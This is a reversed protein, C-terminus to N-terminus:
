WLEPKLWKALDSQKFKGYFENKEILQICKKYEEIDLLPNVLINFDIEKPLGINLSIGLQNIENTSIIDFRYEREYAFVYEKRFAAFRVKSEQLKSPNVGILNKYKVKGHILKSVELDNVIPMSGEEIRNIFDDRKFRLSYKRRNKETKSYTDWFALTEKTGEHFCSILHKRKRGEIKEFDPRESLLDNITVCEMKDGFKDARSFWINGTELFDLLFTEETFKFLYPSILKEINYTEWNM